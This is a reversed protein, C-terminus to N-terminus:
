FFIIKFIQENIKVVQIDRAEEIIDQLGSALQEYSESIKM